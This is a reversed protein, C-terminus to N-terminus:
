KKGGGQNLEKLHEEKFTGSFAPVVINDEKQIKLEIGWYKLSEVVGGRMTLAASLTKPDGIAKIVFPPAFVKGNVMVTPGACRVESTGVLRQDNIAIAEAGGARLENLVRLLDEDHILYLNPNENDKVPVKSDNITIVVGPGSVDTLGARQKLLNIDSVASATANNKQIAELQQRLEDREKEVATLERALDGTRQLHINSAAISQTMKYQGVLMVGLLMSVAAIAWRGQKLM